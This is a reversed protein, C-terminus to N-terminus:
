RYHATYYIYRPYHTDAIAIACNIIVVILILALGGCMYAYVYRMYLLFSSYKIINVYLKAYGYM